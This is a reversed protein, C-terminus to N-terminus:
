KRSRAGDVLQRVLQLTERATSTTEHQDGHTVGLVGAARHLHTVCAAHDPPSAKLCALGASLSRLGVAPHIVRYCRRYLLLLDESAERVSRWEGAGMARNLARTVGVVLAVDEEDNDGERQPPPLGHRARIAGLADATPQAPAVGNGVRNDTAGIDFLYHSRLQARLSAYPQATDVYAITVEDGAAIPALARLLLTPPAGGGGGQLADPPLLFCCWANPCNDHNLSAAHLPFLASGVVELNDPRTVAMANLLLQCYCREVTAADVREESAAAAGMRAAVLRRVAPTAHERVEALLQPEAARMQDVAAHLRAMAGRLAADPGHLALVMQALQDHCEAMSAFSGGGAVLSSGGGGGGGGSGYAYVAAEERLLTEGPKIRRAARLARGRTPHVAHAFLKGAQAAEELAGEEQWADTGHEDAGPAVEKAPVAAPAAAPPEPGEDRAVAEDGPLLWAECEQLLSVCALLAETDHERSELANQLRALSSAVREAAESAPLPEPAPAAAAEPQPVASQACEKAALAEEQQLLAQAASDGASLHLVKRLSAVAEAHRQLVALAQGQRFYAKPYAPDLETSRQADRLASEVLAHSSCEGPAQKLRAAARNVYLVARDQDDMWLDIATTYCKAAAEFNGRKFHDNGEKKLAAPDVPNARPAYSTEARKVPM